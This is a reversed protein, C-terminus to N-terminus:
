PEAPLEEPPVVEPILPTTGIAAAGGLDVGPGPAALLTGRLVGNAGFRWRRYELDADVASPDVISTSLGSETALPIPMLMTEDPSLCIPITPGPGMIPILGPMLGPPIITLAPGAPMPIASAFPKPMVWLGMPIIPGPPM